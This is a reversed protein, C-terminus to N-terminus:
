RDLFYRPSSVRTRSFDPLGGFVGISNSAIASFCKSQLQHLLNQRILNLQINKSDQLDENKLERISEDDSSVFIM